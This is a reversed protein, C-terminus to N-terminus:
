TSTCRQLNRNITLPEMGALGPNENDYVLQGWRNFVKFETISLNEPNGESVVYFFDNHRIGNPTFANPVLVRPEEM